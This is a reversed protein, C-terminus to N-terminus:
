IGLAGPLDAFSDIAVDPRIESASLDEERFKGTRVLVGRLGAGQGGGVDGELDDGVSAVECANLKLGSIATEFFARAPKGLLTAERRSAYELARVFAGVDLRMGDGHRYMRNEALAYFDAGELLLRFACNLRDYSFEDGLDGVVVAQAGDATSEIGEMDSLVADKLLFYAHKVGRGRLVKAAVRPATFISEAEIGLGMADLKAVISSRPKSTTNTLFRMPMRAARLASLAAMVGPLVEDGVYLTGDLDVALGRIGRLAEM